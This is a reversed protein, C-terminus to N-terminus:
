SNWCQQIQVVTLIYGWAMNVLGEDCTYLQSSLSFNPMEFCLLTKNEELKLRKFFAYCHIFIQQQSYIRLKEVEFYILVKIKITIYINISYCKFFWTMVLIRKALFLFINNVLYFILGTCAVLDALNKLKKEFADTTKLLYKNGSRSYNTYRLKIIHSSIKLQTSQKVISICWTVQQELLFIVIAKNM